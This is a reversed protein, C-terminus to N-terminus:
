EVSLKEVRLGGHEAGLLVKITSPV